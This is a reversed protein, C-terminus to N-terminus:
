VKFGGVVGRIEEVLHAVSRAAGATDNMTASSEDSLQAIAEVRKALETSASTQESIALSIDNISEVVQDSSSKLKEIVSGAEDARALGSSVAAVGSHMQEVSQRIGGQVVGIINSIEGTSKTTREALKRVEDAVVAFGRGHEGARAAEIAANLALLNTQDAIDNIVGIIAGIQEGKKGLDSVSDASSTVESSILEMEGVATQVIRGGAEAQSKSDGAARSTAESKGAIETASSSMEEVAASVQATQREQETLGSAMQEASAAIETSAAAVSNTADSVSRILGHLTGVFTDFWHALRGIEDGRSLGIRKTLDGDGTAVDRIREILNDLPRTVMSRLAFVFGFAAILVAPITVWLGNRIFAAVEADARALPMVVEYAGHMDGTKWGEMAFGLPDKGDFEGHDDRADYRAPDGHCMMCSEELRIARMYHLSNEKEDIRGLAWEGGSKVQKELDRLMQERFSGAGPENKPNRAEFAAVRFTLDEKEAAKGAATWGVVVPITEYFRTEHYGKGSAVQELADKLLAERDVAHTQQLRSAHNKSEDAVATFAAAKELLAQRADKAFGRVFVVYNVSVTALIAVVAPAVIKSTLGFGKKTGEGTKSVSM